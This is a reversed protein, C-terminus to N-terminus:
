LALIVVGVSPGECWEGTHVRSEVLERHVQAIAAAAAICQPATVLPFPSLADQLRASATASHLSCGPFADVLLPALASRLLPHRPLVPLLLSLFTSISRLALFAHTAQPDQWSVGM